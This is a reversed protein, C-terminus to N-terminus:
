NDPIFRIAAGPLTAPRPHLGLHVLIKVIVPPDEISAQEPPSPVIERRLKANPALVGHFRGARLSTHPIDTRSVLARTCHRSCFANDSPPVGILSLVNTGRSYSTNAPKSTSLFLM